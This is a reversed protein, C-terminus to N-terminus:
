RIYKIIYFIVKTLKVKKNIELDRIQEEMSVAPLFSFFLILSLIQSRAHQIM